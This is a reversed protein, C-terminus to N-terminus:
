LLGWKVRRAARSTCPVSNESTSRLGGRRACVPSFARGEPAQRSPPPPGASRDRRGASAAGRRPGGADRDRRRPLDPPPAPYTGAPAPTQLTDARPGPSCAGRPTLLTRRGRTEWVSATKVTRCDTCKLTCAAGRTALETPRRPCRTPQPLGVNVSAVDTVPLPRASTGPPPCPCVGSPGATLAGPGGSRSRPRPALRAAHGRASRTSPGKGAAGKSQRSDGLLFLGIGHIERSM